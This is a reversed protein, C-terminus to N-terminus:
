RDAEIQRVFARGLAECFIAGGKGTMHAEDRFHQRQLGAEERVDLWVGGIGNVKQELAACYEPAMTEDRGDVSRRAPMPVFVVQVGEERARGVLRELYRWSLEKDVPDLVFPTQRILDQGTVVATERIDLASSATGLTHWVWNAMHARRRYCHLLHNLAFDLAGHRSSLAGDTAVAMDSWTALEATHSEWPHNNRAWNLDHQGFIIIITSIDPGNLAHNAATLYWDLTYAGFTALNYVRYGSGITQQMAHTPLAQALCTGLIVVDSSDTEPRGDFDRLRQTLDGKTPYYVRVGLELGTFTLLLTLVIWRVRLLPTGAPKRESSSSTSSSDAM